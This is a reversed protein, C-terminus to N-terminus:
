LQYRTVLGEPELPVLTSQVPDPGTWSAEGCGSSKQRGGFLCQRCTPCSSRAMLWRDICVVHFGHNCKPLVRVREGLQFESLCIACEPDNAQLKLGPSYVLIPMSRLAKRRSGSQALRTVPNSELDIVPMQNSCRLACRVISNLGLACILACLLVALIMVVNADFSNGTSSSSDPLYQVYRSNSVSTGIASQSPGPLQKHLPTHLLARRSSFILAEGSFSNSLATTQLTPSLSYPM